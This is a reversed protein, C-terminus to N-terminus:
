QLFVRLFDNYAMKSSLTRDYYEKIHFFEEESLSIGYQLLVERFDAVDMMGTRAQDYEKFTRRLPRWCHLIQPQIRLLVAFLKPSQPGPGELMSPKQIKLRRLVSPKQATFLLVYGQLFDCYAFRGNSKKDYKATLQQQDVKSFNLGFKEALAWFDAIAMEGQQDLDKGSCEKLLAKWCSQIKKRLRQEIPECTPLPPALREPCVPHGLTQSHSTPAPAAEPHPYSTSGGSLSVPRSGREPVGAPNTSTLPPTAMKRCFKALFDRYKLKGSADLPMHSWLNEFQEDSWLPFQRSCIGRFDEKTVTGAQPPDADALAQALQTSHARLTESLEPPLDHKSQGQPPTRGASGPMGKEKVKSGTMQM